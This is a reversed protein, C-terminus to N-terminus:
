QVVTPVKTNRPLGIYAISKQAFITDYIFYTFCSLSAISQGVTLYTSHLITLVCCVFTKGSFAEWFSAM